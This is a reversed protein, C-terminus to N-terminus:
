QRLGKGDNMQKALALLEKYTLVAETGDDYEFVFDARGTKGNKQLRMRKPRRVKPIEYVNM